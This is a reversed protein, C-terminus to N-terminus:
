NWLDRPFPGQRAAYSVLPTPSVLSESSFLLPDSSFGLNMPNTYSKGISKEILKIAYKFLVYM